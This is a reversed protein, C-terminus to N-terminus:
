GRAGHNIALVGMALWEDGTPARSWYRDHTTLVCIAVLNGILSVRKRWVGAYCGM